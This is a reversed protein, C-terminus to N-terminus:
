KLEMTGARLRPHFPLRSKFDILDGPFCRFKRSSARDECEQGVNRVLFIARANDAFSHAFEAAYVDEDFVGAAAHTKYAFCIEIREATFLVFFAPWVVHTLKRCEWLGPRNFRGSIDLAIGLQQM